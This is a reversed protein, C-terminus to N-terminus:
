KDYVMSVKPEAIIMGPGLSPFLEYGAGEMQRKTIAVAEDVYDDDAEVLLEDHVPAVIRARKHDLEEWVRLMALKIMDASSAQIPHNKGEREAGSMLKRDYRIDKTWHRRRGTVSQTYFKTVAQMANARLLKGTNPFLTNQWEHVWRDCEQRTLIFGHTLFLRSLTRYLNFGSSGYGIGYSVPKFADRMIYFPLDKNKRNKVTIREGLVREIEDGYLQNGVYSHVDGMQIQLLLNEDESMAALIVLEIAGYDSIIFKRGPPAFFMSRIDFKALHLAALKEKKIINQFNPNYSSMRGTRAAGCQSFGPHIRQTVPNIRSLLGEVYTGRIKSAAKLIANLQLFPHTFSSVIEGEDDEEGPIDLVIAAEKKVEKRHTLAYQNDWDVLDKSDLSNVNIGLKNAMELMQKSSRPNVVSYGDKGFVIVDAAGEAILMDQIQHDMREEIAVLEPHSEELRERNICVGEYEMSATIHMISMELLHARELEEAKLEKLQQEYIPELVRVDEYAYQLADESFVEGPKWNIFQQRISKDLDINLRRKATDDLGFGSFILGGQILQETIYTCHMNNTRIDSSHFIMKWDFIWNHAVKVVEENELIPKFWKLTAIPLQTYDFIYDVGDARIQLLLFASTHPDLGNTETDVYMISAEQLKNLVIRLQEPTTVIM